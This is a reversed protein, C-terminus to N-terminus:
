SITARPTQLTLIEGADMEANAAKYMGDLWESQQLFSASQIVSQELFRERDVGLSLCLVKLRPKV